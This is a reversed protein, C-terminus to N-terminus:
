DLAEFQFREYSRMQLYSILEMNSAPSCDYGTYVVGDETKAAIVLDKIEGSEALELFNKIMDSAGSEHLPIIKPMTSAM